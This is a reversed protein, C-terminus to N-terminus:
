QKPNYKGRQNGAKREHPPCNMHPNSKKYFFGGQAMELFFNLNIKPFNPIINM